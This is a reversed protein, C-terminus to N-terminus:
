VVLLAHFNVRAIKRSGIPDVSPTTYCKAFHCFDPWLANQNELYEHTQHKETDQGVNQDCISKECCGSKMQIEWTKKHLSRGTKSTRGAAFSNKQRVEM